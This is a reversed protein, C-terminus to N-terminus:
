QSHLYLPVQKLLLAVQKLESADVNRSCHTDAHPGMWTNISHALNFIISTHAVILPWHEDFNHMVTASCAAVMLIESFDKISMSLKLVFLLISLLHQHDGM